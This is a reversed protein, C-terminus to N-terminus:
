VDHHYANLTDTSILCQDFQPVYLIDLLEFYCSCESTNDKLEFRVTGTHTAPVTHGDAISVNCNDIPVVTHQVFNSFFPMMHSSAGSDILWHISPKVGLGDHHHPPLGNHLHSTLNYTPHTTKYTHYNVLYTNIACAHQHHVDTANALEVATQPLVPAPTAPSNNNPASRTTTPM